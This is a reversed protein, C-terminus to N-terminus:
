REVTNRLAEAATAVSTAMTGECPRRDLLQIAETGPSPSLRTYGLTTSLRLPGRAGPHGEGTGGADRPPQLLFTHRLFQLGGGLLVMAAIQPDIGRAADALRRYESFDFFTMGTKEARLLRVRCPRRDLV